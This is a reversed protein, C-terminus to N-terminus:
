ARVRREFSMGGTAFSTVDRALGLGKVLADWAGLKTGKEGRKPSHAALTVRGPHDAHLNAAMFASFRGTLKAGNCYVDYSVSSGPPKANVSPVNPASPRQWVLEVGGEATLALMATLGSRLASVYDEGDLLGALMPPNAKYWAMTAFTEAEDGPKDFCEALKRAKGICLALNPQQLILAIQDTPFM